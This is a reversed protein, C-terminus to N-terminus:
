RERSYRTQTKPRVQEQKEVLMELRVTSRDRHSGSIRERRSGLTRHALALLMQRATGAALSNGVTVTLMLSGVPALVLDFASWHLLGSRLHVLFLSLEALHWAIHQELGVREFVTNAM